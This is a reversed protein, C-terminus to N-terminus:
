RAADPAPRDRPECRRNRSHSLGRAPIDCSPSVTVNRVAPLPTLPRLAGRRDSRTRAATTHWENCDADGRRLGRTRGARGRLHIRTRDALAKIPLAKPRGALRERADARRLRLADALIRRAGGAVPAAAVACALAAENDPRDDPGRQRLFLGHRHVTRADLRAQAGALARGIGLRQERPGDAGADVGCALREVRGHRAVHQAVRLHRRERRIKERERRLGRGPDVLLVDMERGHDLRTDRRPLAARHEIDHLREDLVLTAARSLILRSTGRAVHAHGTRVALPHQM